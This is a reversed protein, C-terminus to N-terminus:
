PSSADAAGDPPTDARKLQENFGTQSLVVVAPFDAPLAATVRPLHKSLKDRALMSPALLELVDGARRIGSDLLFARVTPVDELERAAEQLQVLFPRADPDVQPGGVTEPAAARLGEAGKVAREARRRANTVAWPEDCGRDSCGCAGALHSRLFGPVNRIPKGTERAADLVAPLWRRWNVAREAAHPGLQAFTAAQQESLGFARLADLAEVVVAAAADEIPLCGQAHVMDRTPPTRSMSVSMDAGSLAASLPGKTGPAGEYLAAKQPLLTPAPPAPLAALPHLPGCDAARKWLEPADEEFLLGTQGDWGAAGGAAAPIGLERVFLWWHGPHPLDDTLVAWSYFAHGRGGKGRQELFPIYARLAEWELRDLSGPAGQAPGNLWAVFRSLTDEHQRTARALDSLKLPLVTGAPHQRALWQLRTLIAWRRPEVVPHWYGELYTSITSFEGALTVRAYVEALRAAGGELPAARAIIGALTLGWGRPLLASRVVV